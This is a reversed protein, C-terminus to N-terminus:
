LMRKTFAFLARGRNEHPDLWYIEISAKGFYPKLWRFGLEVSSLAQISRPKASILVLM